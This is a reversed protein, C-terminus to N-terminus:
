FRAALSLRIDRGSEPMGVVGEWGPIHDFSGNSAHDIYQKDFLNMVALNVKLRDHGTPLWEVYLDHVGYGPKDIEGASTEIDDIGKVFRANWGMRWADSARYDLNATLTDGISNGLGGHDYANLKMGDIEADNHHFSLSASLQQWQHGLTILYGDSDVDGVNTYLRGAAAAIADDIRSQYVKGSIFFGDQTYDFGIENNVAEEAKLNPDNSYVDLRFAEQTEPGRFAQAHRAFLTLGNNFAYELGLNPSTGSEEFSQDAKDDLEYRDHRLGASLTLPEIIQWRDQLYIGRVEGDEQDLRTDGEPGLYVKDERYDIGYTLSHNGLVSTNRLDFGTSETTGFYLGWRGDQQLETETNYISLDADVFQNGLPNINYGFTLTERETEMPYAPNWDSVIWQPRQPREGEDTRNEFSFRLTQSDGIHGVLKAFGLQQESETGAVDDGNGDEFQDQDSASLSVLGSWDEGLRGYLSTSLKGVDGNSYYSGKILAGIREDGQLLDEPDKTIFRIAGGLSGPGSTADGTGADVEVAKILDPEISLRGSHHYQSGGQTAGDISVNLLSDQLGRVYVKQAVGVSGGVSVEPQQRFVDELDNAQIQDLQQSDVHGTEALPKSGTIDIQQLVVPREDALAAQSALVGSVAIALLCPRLPLSLRKEM